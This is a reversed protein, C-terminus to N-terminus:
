NENGDHQEIIEKAKELDALTNINFFSLHEQDYKDLEAQDLYFVRVKGQAVFYTLSLQKNKIQEEIPDICNKSYIAHLPEVFGEVRPVVIDYNAAIQMMQTLLKKNLFPMDVAVALSHFSRAAKLGSLLGGLAGSDPYIDYVIDVYHRFMPLKQEPTTSIIIQDSISALCDVTREILTQKGLKELLKNKGLRKSRGGALVISTM